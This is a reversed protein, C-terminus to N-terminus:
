LAGPTIANFIFQVSGLLVAFTSGWLPYLNFDSM